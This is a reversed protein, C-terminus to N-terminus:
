RIRQRLPRDPGLERLLDLYRRIVEDPKGEALLEGEHLLLVRDCVQRVQEMDHSVFVMTKGLRRFNNMRALCKEQFGVDGVALVEDVLLIDPDIETAVAFGLRAAMGSSYTRLPTDIFDQLGAFDLIPDLKKEMERRTFGLIVGALVVNERGTLDLHFGAGLEILPSVAGNVEVTGATPPFIRAIIKLLTSKGSGNRGILGLTEGSAVAFSVGKLADFQKLIPERRYLRRLTERLSRSRKRIRKYRQRVDRLRIKFRNGTDGM